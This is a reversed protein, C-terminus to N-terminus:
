KKQIQIARALIQKKGFTMLQVFLLVETNAPVKGLVFQLDMYQYLNYYPLNGCHELLQNNIIETVNNELNINHM